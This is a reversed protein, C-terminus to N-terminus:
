ANILILIDAVTEDVTYKHPHEKGPFQVDLYNFQSVGPLALVHESGAGVDPPSPNLNDQIRGLREVIFNQTASTVVVNDITRVTLSIAIAM